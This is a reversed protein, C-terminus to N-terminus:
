DSHLKPGECLQYCRYYPHPGFYALMCMVTGAAVSLRVGPPLLSGRAAFFIAPAMAHVTPLPRTLMCGVNSWLYMRSHLSLIQAAFQGLVPDGGSPLHFVLISGLADGAVLVRRAPAAALCTLPEGYPSRAEAWVQPAGAASGTGSGPDSGIGQLEMDAQAGTAGAKPGPSPVEPDACRDWQCARPVAALGPLGAMRENSLGQSCPCLPSEPLRWLRLAGLSDMTAAYRPGLEQAWLIRHVASGPHAQWCVSHAGPVGSGDPGDEADSAAPVWVCAAWGAFGGLLVSDYAAYTQPRCCAPGPHPQAPEATADPTPDAGAGGDGCGQLVPGSAGRNVPAGHAPGDARTADCGANVAQGDQLADPTSIRVAMCMPHGELPCAWVRQWSAREGTGSGSPLRVRHLLGRQTAVYLLGPDPSGPHGAFGLCRVWEPAASGDARRFFVAQGSTGAGEGGHLAQAPAPTGHGAPPAAVRSGPRSGAHTQLYYSASREAEAAAASDALHAYDLALAEVGRPVQLGARGAQTGGGGTSADNKENGDCEAYTDEVSLRGGPESLQSRILAPQMGFNALPWLKLSGDAGATAARGGPLLACRWIGRGRHGQLAAVCKGSRWVRPLHCALPDNVNMDTTPCSCTDAALLSTKAM